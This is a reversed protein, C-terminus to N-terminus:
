VAEIVNVHDPWDKTAAKARKELIEEKLPNAGLEDQITKMQQHLFFERQQQDLDTKVKRQIDQKLSLM